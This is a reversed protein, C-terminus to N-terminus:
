ACSLLQLSAWSVAGCTDSFSVVGKTVAPMKGIGACGVFLLARPSPDRTRLSEVGLAGWSVLSLLACNQPWVEGYVAEGYLVSSSFFLSACSFAFVLQSMISAWDDSCGCFFETM